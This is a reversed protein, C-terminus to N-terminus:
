HRKAVGHDSTTQGGSQTLKEVHGYEILRPSEYLKRQVELKADNEKPLEIM